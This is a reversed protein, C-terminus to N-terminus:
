GHKHAATAAHTLSEMGIPDYSASEIPNTEVIRDESNEILKILRNTL